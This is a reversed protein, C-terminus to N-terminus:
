LLRLNGPLETLEQSLFAARVTSGAVLRGGYPTTVGALLRLLTTKGAGNAGILSIREGAALDLSLDDAAIVAGFRKNLKQASLVPIM